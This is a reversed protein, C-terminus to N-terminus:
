LLLILYVLHDRLHDILILLHDSQDLHLLLLGLEVHNLRDVLLALEDALLLLHFLKLVLHEAAIGGLLFGALGLDQSLSGLSLSCALLDELFELALFLATASVSLVDLVEAILEVHLLKLLLGADTLALLELLTLLDLLIEEVRLSILLAQLLLALSFLASHLILKLHLQHLLKGLILAKLLHVGLLASHTFKVVFTFDLAQPLLLERDIACLSLDLHVLSTGLLLVLSALGDDHLDLLLTEEPLVSGDQMGIM